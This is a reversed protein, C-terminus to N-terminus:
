RDRWKSSSLFCVLSLPSRVAVAVPVIYAVDASSARVEQYYLSFALLWVKKVTASLAISIASVATKKNKKKM